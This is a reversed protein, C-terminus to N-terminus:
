SCIGSSLMCLGVFGAYTLLAVRFQTRGIKSIKRFYVFVCLRNTLHLSRKQREKDLEKQRNIPFFSFKGWKRSIVSILIGTERAYLKVIPPFNMINMITGIDYNRYRNQLNDFLDLGIISWRTSERRQIASINECLISFRVTWDIAPASFAPGYVVRRRERSINGQM